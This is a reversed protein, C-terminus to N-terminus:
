NDKLIINKMNTLQVFHKREEEIIQDIIERNKGSVINKFEQFFSIANLETSIAFDIADIENNISKLKEQFINKNFLVSEAYSFLYSSYEGAYSEFPVIKDLESYIEEYFKRHQAEEDALFLFLKKVSPDNLKEGMERYFKEGNEEIRIALLFAESTKFTFGM